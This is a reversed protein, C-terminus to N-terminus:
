RRAGKRQAELAAAADQAAEILAEVEAASLDAAAYRARECERLVRRFLAATESEIGRERLLREVDGSTIGGEPVNLLDAVFGTTARFLADAPEEADRAAEIRKRGQSRARHARVFGADQEFRQRRRAYLAFALYAIPPMSWTVARRATGSDVPRLVGLTDANPQIDKGLVTVENDAARPLPAAEIVHLQEDAAASVNLTYPGFTKQVYDGVEPDFYIYNFAPLTIVGAQSATLSYVFNKEVVTSSPDSSPTVKRDPESISLGQAKPLEPDGIADPNGEGRVRVTFQVPVGQVLNTSSLSADVDFLGVAGSFGAPQPPLPKVHIHLAPTTLAFDRRQYGISTRARGMGNWRWPGIELDGSTTPFLTQRFSIVNYNLGDKPRPGEGVRQPQQPVAYFGQTSPWPNGEVPLEEVATGMMDLVWLELDLTLQEGAYVSDKNVKSQLFVLDDFTPEKMQGPPPPPGPQRPPPAPVDSAGSATLTLASSTQMAGDIEVAIPPIQFTGAREARGVYGRQKITTRGSGTSFSFSDSRRRPTPDFTLGDVQPLQPEGVEGGRADIFLLFPAGVRVSTSDLRATVEAIAATCVLLTCLGAGWATRRTM